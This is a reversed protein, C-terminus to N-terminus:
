DLSDISNQAFKQKNSIDEDKMSNFPYEQGYERMIRINDSCDQIIEQLHFVSNFNTPVHVAYTVKDSRDRLFKDIVLCIM